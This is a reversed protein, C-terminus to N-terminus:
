RAKIVMLSVDDEHHERNTFAALEALTADLVGQASGDKGHERLLRELRDEGFM